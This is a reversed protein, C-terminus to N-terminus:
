LNKRRRYKKVLSCTASYLEMWKNLADQTTYAKLEIVLKDDEFRVM